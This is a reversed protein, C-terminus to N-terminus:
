WLTYIHKIRLYLFTFISFMLMFINILIGFGRQYDLYTHFVGIKLPHIMSTFPGHKMSHGFSVLLKNGSIQCSVMYSIGYSHSSISKLNLTYIYIHAYKNKVNSKSVWIYMYIYIYRYVTRCYKNWHCLDAIYKWLINFRNKVRHYIYMYVNHLRCAYSCM